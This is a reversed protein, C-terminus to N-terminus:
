ERELILTVPGDNNIEVQMLAGFRGTEVTLGSDHLISVFQDYLKEAVAPTAARDYSPRRGKRCDGYLTFQSIVLIHGGIDRISKTMRGTEDPFVRLALCKDTMWKIDDASDNKSIGVLLNIGRGIEGIIQGSVAVSSQTVRQLIVKM